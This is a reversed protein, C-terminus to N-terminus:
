EPARDLLVPYGALTSEVSALYSHLAAVMQAGEDVAAAVRKVSKARVDGIAFVGRRATELAHREAGAKLGEPRARHRFGCALEPRRRYVPPGLTGAQRDACRWPLYSTHIATEPIDTKM